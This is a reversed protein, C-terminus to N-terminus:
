MRHVCRLNWKLKVFNEFKQNRLFTLNECFRLSTPVGKLSKGWKECKALNKKFCNFCFSLQIDNKFSEFFIQAFVGTVFVFKIKLIKTFKTLCHITFDPRVRTFNWLRRTAKLSKDSNLLQVLSRLCAEPHKANWTM